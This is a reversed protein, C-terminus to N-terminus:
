GGPMANLGDNVRLTSIAVPHVVTQGVAFRGVLTVPRGPRLRTPVSGRYIVTLEAGNAERVRFRVANERAKKHLSGTVVGSLAHSYVPTYTHTRTPAYVLFLAIVM